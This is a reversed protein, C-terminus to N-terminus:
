GLGEAPGGFGKFSVRRHRRPAEPEEELPAEVTEEQTEIPASPRAAPVAPRRVPQGAASRPAPRGVILDYIIAKAESQEIGHEVLITLMDAASIKIEM